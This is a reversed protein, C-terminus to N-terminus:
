SAKAATKILQNNTKQNTRLIYALMALLVVIFVAIIVTSAGYTHILNTYESVEDSYQQANDVVTTTVSDM